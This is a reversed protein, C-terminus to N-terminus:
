LWHGQAIKDAYLRQLEPSHEADLALPRTGTVCIGAEQLSSLKHPSNTLLVVSALGLDRVIAAARAYTRADTAYGLRVYAETQSLSEQNCLTRSRLLALHGNGRGEQDLWIIVGAGAQAVLAQAMAMQERCDCEISNFFHGAVCHSHVRCLVDACGQVEGMVLAICEQQGDDYLVELFTGFHTRLPSEALRVVM